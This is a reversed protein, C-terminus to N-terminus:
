QTGSQDLEVLQLANNQWFLTGHWGDEPHTVAIATKGNYDAVAFQDNARRNWGGAPGQIPSPTAWAIALDHGDYRFIGTWGDVNNYVFLEQRGDGEVDVPLFTDDGSRNWGTIPSPSGWLLHLAPSEWKLIGTWKDNNNTILIEQKGDGDMDAAAIFADNTGRNWGDIWGINFWIMNGSADHVETVNDQHKLNIGGLVTELQGDGNIDALISILIQDV